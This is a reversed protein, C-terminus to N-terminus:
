LPSKRGTSHFVEAPEIGAEIAATAMRNRRIAYEDADLLMTTTAGRRRKRRKVKQRAISTGFYVAENANSLPHHPWVVEAVQGNIELWAHDMAAGTHAPLVYGECYDIDDDDWLEQYVQLATYYCSRPDHDAISDLVDQVLSEADASLATSRWEGIDLIKQLQGLRPDILGDRYRRLNEKALTKLIRRRDAGDLGDLWTEYDGVLSPSQSRLAEIAAPPAEWHQECAMLYRGIALNPNRVDIQKVITGDSLRDARHSFTRDPISSADPVLRLAILRAREDPKDFDQIDFQRRVIDVPEDLGTAVIGIENVRDVGPPYSM